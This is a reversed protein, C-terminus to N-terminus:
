IGVVVSLGVNILGEDEILEWEGLWELEARKVRELVWEIGVVM